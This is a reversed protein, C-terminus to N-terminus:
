KWSKFLLGLFGLMGFSFFIVVPLSYGRWSEGGHINLSIAAAIFLGACIISMGVGRFSREMQRRLMEMEKIKIEFAFDNSNFKKFM